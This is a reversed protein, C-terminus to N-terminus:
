WSPWGPPPPENEEAASVRFVWAEHGARAEELTPYREWEGNLWGGDIKTEFLAPPADQSLAMNMGLFVTSVAGYKVKTSAVSRVRSYSTEYWQRWKEYDPEEVVAGAQLIYYRGM